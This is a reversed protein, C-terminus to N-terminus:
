VFLHGSGLDDADLNIRPALRRSERRCMVTSSISVHREQKRALPRRSGGDDEVGKTKSDGEEAFYPRGIVPTSSQVIEEGEIPMPQVIEPDIAGVQEVGHSGFGGTGRPHEAITARAVGGM